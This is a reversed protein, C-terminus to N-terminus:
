KQILIMDARQWSCYLNDAWWYLVVIICDGCLVSPSVQIWFGNVRGTPTYAPSRREEPHYYSHILSQAALQVDFLNHQLSILTPGSFSRLVFRMKKKQTKDM